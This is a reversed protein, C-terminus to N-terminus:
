AICKLYPLSPVFPLSFMGYVVDGVTELRTGGVPWKNIDLKNAKRHLWLLLVNSGIDSVSDIGPALLSLSASSVAAYVPVDTLERHCIFDIYVSM